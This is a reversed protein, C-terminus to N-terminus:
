GEAFRAALDTTDVEYERWERDPQFGLEKNVQSLQERDAAHWTEVEALQPERARLELLMRAKIARALGYSNHAPVVITDYQDARTPHQAPVVLETLGAVVGSREHMAVVIYPHLGRVNLCRLSARLRDSDYSSPRLEMDGTPDARRVQKAEAYAPLLSDPLDGEHVTVVYGSVLGAAMEEVHDWDVTSLSLISRTETYVHTFGYGSYFDAAPTGGVVEVGVSSFRETLARDAVVKLLARGVGSRRARPAVHLELVGLDSLVLLGAYGLFSGDADQAIWNTRREDPMTHVLYERLHASQWSPDTPLDHVLVENYLDLWAAIEEAPATAPDWERLRM